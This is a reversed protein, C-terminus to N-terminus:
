LRMSCKTVWYAFLVEAFLGKELIYEEAAVPTALCVCLYSLVDLVAMAFLSRINQPASQLVGLEL